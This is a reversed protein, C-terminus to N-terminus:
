ENPQSIMGASRNTTSNVPRWLYRNAVVVKAANTRMRTGQIMRLMETLPMGKPVAVKAMISLEAIAGSSRRSRETLGSKSVRIWVERGKKVAAEWTKQCFSTVLQLVM